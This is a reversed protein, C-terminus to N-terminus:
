FPPNWILALQLKFGPLVPDGTVFEPSRLIQVERTPTYIEVDKSVPLILWGLRLGCSLYEHMKARLESLEDSPSAMENVFDPCLPIFQEKERHSLKGLRALEVWAADPSRMTRNLLRFGTSSDFAAGAGDSSAWAELQGFAKGSRFGAYGGAPSIVTIEGKSSKEIRLERNAQCFQFFAEESWDLTGAPLRVTEQGEPIPITLLVCGGAECEKDSFKRALNRLAAGAGKGLKASGNLAGKGTDKGLGAAGKGLSAGAMVPHGTALDGVSGAAGKGMAETGHGV